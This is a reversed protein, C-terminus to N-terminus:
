HRMDMFIIYHMHLAYMMYQAVSVGYGFQLQHLDIFIYPFMTIEIIKNSKYELLKCPWINLHIISWNSLSMITM